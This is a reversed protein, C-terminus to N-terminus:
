ESNTIKKLKQGVSSNMIFQINTIYKLLTTQPDGPLYISKDRYYTNLIKDREKLFESGDKLNDEPTNEKYKDALEMIKSFIVGAKSEYSAVIINNLKEIEEEALACQNFFNIISELEDRDFDRVFLHNFEKWSNTPLVSVGKIDKTDKIQQISREANRIEMLIITAADSKRQTQQLFYVLIIVLGTIVTALGIFFNSNFFKVM